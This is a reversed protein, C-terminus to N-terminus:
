VDLMIEIRCHDSPGWEDGDLARTRVRDAIGGSAFVFDLQRTATAPDDRATRYTSVDRCGLPMEEPRSRLAADAESLQPGCYRFGIAEMRDFVTQYRAGWYASGHEGYRHLLNWDDAVLVRHARQTSVLACLDSVVRHASADAYIWGGGDLPREWACYVSVIVIPDGDDVTLRAAAITGARSVALEGEGAHEIPRVPLSTLRVRDSTRVVATCFRRSEVGATSWGENAGVADFHAVTPASPVEAAARCIDLSSAAV